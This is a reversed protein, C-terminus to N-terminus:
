DAEHKKLSSIEEDVNVVDKLEQLRKITEDVFKRHASSGPHFPRHNLASRIDKWKVLFAKLEESFYQEGFKQWIYEEAVDSPHIMDSKYFRYDRLDDLVLEYAPFYQVDTHQQTLTHCAVRLISKSVSNLELTEKIHRVPSVTLIIRIGPNLVKLGTYMAEFSGLIEKQTMLFKNFLSKPMKHCNAVIDNTQILEYVWATGYTIILWKASRLFSHTNSIISKLREKLEHEDLSSLQSHFDYHLFVDQRQVLSNETVNSESVAYQIVKHISHPNYITGFPNVLATVKNSILRSGIADSFCSGITLISDTLSIRLASPTPIVETRFNDM